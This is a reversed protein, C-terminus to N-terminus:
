YLLGCYFTSTYLVRLMSKGRFLYIPNITESFSNVNQYDKNNLFIHQLLNFFYQQSNYQRHLTITLHEIILHQIFQLFLFKLTIWVYDVMFTIRTLISKYAFPLLFSRVISYTFYLFLRKRDKSWYEKLDYNKSFKRQM